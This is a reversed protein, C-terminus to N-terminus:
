TAPKPLGLMQAVDHPNLFTPAHHHSGPPM